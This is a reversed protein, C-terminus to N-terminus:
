CLITESGRDDPGVAGQGGKGPGVPLGELSIPTTVRSLYIGVFMIGIGVLTALGPMVGTQIMEILTTMAPVAFALTTVKGVRERRLMGSWLLFSAFGSFISVYGLDLLFEPTVNVAFTIPTFVAFLAGAILLQTGVTAAADQSRTKRYYVTYCAWFVANGM